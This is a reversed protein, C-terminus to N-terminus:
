PRDHDERLDRYTRDEERGRLVPDDPEMPEWEADLEARAIEAELRDEASSQAWAPWEM